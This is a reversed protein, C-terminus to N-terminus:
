HGGRLMAEQLLSKLAFSGNTVVEQGATLGKRVEVWDTRQVGLTLDHSQFRNNGLPTFAVRKDGLFQVASAPITVDERGRNSTITAEVFMGARLTQDPNDLTIRVPLTRAQPDLAAGVAAVTGHWTQDSGAALRVAAKDGAAVLTAGAEPVQVMAIVVSLDAVTFGNATTEILEGTTISMNVVVGAIPTVLAGMGPTDSPNLRNVQTQLAQLRNRAVEAAAEAQALLLRRREAEAASLSGDHALIIGRHLADRAVSVGAEAEQLSARASALNEEETILSPIELTALPQNARVQDGPQVLLKTVRAQALPRLVAVHGPDFAITGPAKVPQTIERREAKATQLGITHQQETSMSVVDPKPESQSDPQTPAAAILLPLALLLTLRRKM